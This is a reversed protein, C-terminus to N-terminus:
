RNPPIKKIPKLGCSKFAKVVRELLEHYSPSYFLHCTCRCDGSGFGRVGQLSKGLEKAVDCERRTSSEAVVLDVVAARMTLYDIHWHTTKEKRLHHAIRGGLGSLASGVYAYYGREFSRMGLGGIKLQIDYPVYLILVYTGPPMSVLEKIVSSILSVLDGM